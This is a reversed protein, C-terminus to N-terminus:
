NAHAHSGGEVSGLHSRSGPLTSEKRRVRLSPSAAPAAPISPTGRAPTEEGLVEERWSKLIERLAGVTRSRQRKLREYTRRRDKEGLGPFVRDVFAPLDEGSLLTAEVLELQERPLCNGVNSRLIAVM